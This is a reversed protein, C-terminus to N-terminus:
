FFLIENVCCIQYLYLYLTCGLIPWLLGSPSYLCLEVKEKNEASSHPPHDVGRGPRKVGSFFGTGMTYSVRHAGPGIQVPAFFRAGWRSEIGSGDLGYRTAIGVSINRGVCVVDTRGFVVPKWFTM